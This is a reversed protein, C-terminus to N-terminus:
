KLHRAVLDGLRPMAAKTHELGKPRLSEYAKKVGRNEANRARDDTISLLANAIAHDNAVFFERLTGKGSAQWQTVFPDVKRGFDPMLHHLAGRVFGPKAKNVAKFAGKVAVGTFGRKSAVEQEIVGVGDDVVARLKAPDQIISSLPGM